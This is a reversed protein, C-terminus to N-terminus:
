EAIVTGEKEDHLTCFYDFAGAEDFRAEFWFNPPLSQSTFTASTIAHFQSDRNTWRVYQGIPVHVTDPSFETRRIDVLVTGPAPASPPADLGCAAATLILLVAFALKL